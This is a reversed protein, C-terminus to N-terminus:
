CSFNSTGVVHALQPEQELQVFFICKRTKATACQVHLIGHRSNRRYYLVDTLGASGRQDTLFLFFDAPIVIFFRSCKHHLWCSSPPSLYLYFPGLFCCLDLAWMLAGPSILLHPCSVQLGALWGVWVHSFAPMPVLFFMGVLLLLGLFNGIFLYFLSLFGM